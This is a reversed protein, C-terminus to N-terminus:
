SVVTACRNCLAPHAAHTGVEPLVQWCRICKEGTAQAAVVAIGPVDALTFAHAPATALPLVTAGSTICIEALDLGQLVAADADSVYIEPAAQLSAGIRKEARARELAALVVRRVQRVQQWQAALGPNQWAAPIVPMPQLHVSEAEADKRFAAGAQWAEEATFCLVPALWVTLCNFLHWLVTRTARRRLSTTADCYLADKRIDFYFASLDVACFQHIETYLAHFSYDERAKRVLQDLMYLRHLVSQELAPLEAVNTIAEAPAFDKLSGLIYRLTNRLRRYLDAHHELIAPGIRLDGYYDSSIVWLRLIDAGYKAIVDQPAVVNGLSKSM